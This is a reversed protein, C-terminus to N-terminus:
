IRPWPRGRLPHGPHLHGAQDVGGPGAGGDGRGGVLRRRRGTGHALSAGLHPTRRHQRRLWPGGHGHRAEHRAPDRVDVTRLGDDRLPAATRHRGPRTGQAGPGHHALRRRVPQDHAHRGVHGARLAGAPPLDAGARRRHRHPRPWGDAGARCPRACLHAAGRCDGDDVVTALDGRAVVPLVCRRRAQRVPGHQHGGAARRHAAPDNATGADAGARWLRPVGGARRRLDGHREALRPQDVRPHGGARHTAPADGPQAPGASGVLRRRVGRVPRHRDTPRPPTRDHHWGITAPSTPM